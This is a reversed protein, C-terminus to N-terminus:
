PGGTCVDDGCLSYSEDFTMPGVRRSLDYPAGDSGAGILVIYHKGIQWDDFGSFVSSAGANYGADFDGASAKTARRKGVRIGKRYGAAQGRDYDTAHSADADAAALHRGDDLGGARGKSYGDDYATKYTPANSHGVTYGGAAVAALVLVAVVGIVIGTRM